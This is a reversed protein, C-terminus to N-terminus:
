LNLVPLAKADGHVDLNLGYNQVEDDTLERITQADAHEGGKAAAVLEADREDRAVVVLPQVVPEGGDPSQLTVQVGFGRNM